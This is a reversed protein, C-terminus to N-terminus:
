GIRIRVANFWGADPEVPDVAKFCRVLQSFRFRNIKWLGAQVTVIGGAHRDARGAGRIFPFFVTDDQHVRIRADTALQTGPGTRVAGPFVVGIFTDHFLTGQTDIFNIVRVQRRM